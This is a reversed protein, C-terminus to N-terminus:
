SVYMFANYKNIRYFRMPVGIYVRIGIRYNMFPMYKINYEM